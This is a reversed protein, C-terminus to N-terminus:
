LRVNSLFTALVVKWLFFSFALISCEVSQFRLKYALPKWMLWQKYIWDKVYVTSLHHRHGEKIYLRNYLNAQRLRGTVGRFIDSLWVADMHTQAANHYLGSSGKCLETSNTKTNGRLQLDRNLCSGLQPLRSSPGWGSGWVTCAHM